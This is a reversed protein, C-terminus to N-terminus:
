RRWPWVKSPNTTGVPQRCTPRPKQASLFGDEDRLGAAVGIGGLQLFTSKVGPIFIDLLGEMDSTLPLLKPSSKSYDSAEVKKTQSYLNSGAPTLRSLTNGARNAVV